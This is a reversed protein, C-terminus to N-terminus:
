QSQTGVGLASKFVEYFLFFIGNAPIKQMLRPGMGILFAKAGEEKYIRQIAGFITSYEGGVMMRTKLLDQVYINKTTM